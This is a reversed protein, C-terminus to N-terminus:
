DILESLAYGAFVILAAAAFQEGDAQLKSARESKGRNQLAYARQTGRSGRMIDSVFQKSYAKKAEKYAKSNKYDPDLKAKIREKAFKNNIAAYKQNAEINSKIKEYKPEYNKRTKLALEADKMQRKRLESNYGEINEIRKLRNQLRNYRKEGAPTLSGDENQYRRVGWRQGKIGHHVLYQM